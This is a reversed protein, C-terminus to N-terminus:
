MPTTLGQVMAYFRSQGVFDPVSCLLCLLVCFACSIATRSKKHRRHETKHKKHEMGKVLDLPPLMDLTAVFIANLTSFPDGWGNPAVASASPTFKENNEPFAVPM